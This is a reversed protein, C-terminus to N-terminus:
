ALHFVRTGLPVDEKAIQPPLVFPFTLDKPRPRLGYNFHPISHIRTDVVEGDPKLLRIPDGARVGPVGPGPTVGPAVVCGISSIQFVQEVVFLLFPEM